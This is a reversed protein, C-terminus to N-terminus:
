WVIKQIEVYLVIRKLIVHHLTRALWVPRDVDVAEQNLDGHDHLYRVAMNTRKWSPHWRIFNRQACKGTTITTAIKRETFIKSNVSKWFFLVWKLDCAHRIQSAWFLEFIEDEMAALTEDEEMKDQRIAEEMAALTEEEEMKEQKKEARRERARQNRALRKERQEPTENSHDKWITANFFPAFRWKKSFKFFSVIKRRKRPPEDKKEEKSDRAAAAKAREIRQLRNAEKLAARQKREKDRKALAEIRPKDLAIIHSTLVYKHRTMTKKM